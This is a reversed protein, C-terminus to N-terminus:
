GFEDKGLSEHEGRIHRSVALTVPLRVSHPGIDRNKLVSGAEKWPKAFFRNILVIRLGAYYFSAYIVDGGDSTLCIQVFAVHPM